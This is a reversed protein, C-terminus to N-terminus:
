NKWLEKYINILSQNIVEPKESMLFTSFDMYVGRNKELINKPVKYKSMLDFIVNTTWSINRNDPITISFPNNKSIYEFADKYASCEEISRKLIYIALDYGVKDPKSYDEIVAKIYDIKAKATVRKFDIDEFAVYFPLSLKWSTAIMMEIDQSEANDIDEFRLSVWEPVDKSTKDEIIPTKLEPIERNVTQNIKGKEITVESEFPIDLDPIMAIARGLSATLVYQLACWGYDKDSIKMMAANDYEKDGIIIKCYCEYAQSHKNYAYFRQINADPYLARLRKLRSATSKEELELKM